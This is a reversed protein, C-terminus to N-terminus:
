DYRPVFPELRETAEYELGLHFELEEVIMCDGLQTMDPKRTQLM